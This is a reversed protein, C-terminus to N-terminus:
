VLELYLQYSNGTGYDAFCPRCCLVTPGLRTLKLIMKAVLTSTCNITEENKDELEVAILRSVIMFILSNSVEDSPTAFPLLLSAHNSLSPAIFEDRTAFLIKM